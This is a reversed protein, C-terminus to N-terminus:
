GSLWLRGAQGRAAEVLVTADGRKAGGRGTVAKMTRLRAKFEVERILRTYKSEIRNFKQLKRVGLLNIVGFHSCQM